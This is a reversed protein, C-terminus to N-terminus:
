NKVHLFIQPAMTNYLRHFYGHGGFSQEHEKSHGRKKSSGGEMGRVPM